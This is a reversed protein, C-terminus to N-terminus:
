QNTLKHTIDHRSGIYGSFSTIDETILKDPIIHLFVCLQYEDIVHKLVEVELKQKRNNGTIPSDVIFAASSYGYREGLRGLDVYRRIMGDPSVSGAKLIALPQDSEGVEIVVYM